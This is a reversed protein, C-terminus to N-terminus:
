LLNDMHQRFTSRGSYVEMFVTWLKITSLEPNTTKLKPIQALRIRQMIIRYATKAMVIDLSGRNELSENLETGIFRTYEEQFM